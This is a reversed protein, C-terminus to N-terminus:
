LDAAPLVDMWLYIYQCFMNLPRRESVQVVSEPHRVAIQLRLVDHEAIGVRAGSLRDGLQDIEPRRLHQRPVGVPSGVVASIHLVHAGRHFFLCHGGGVKAAWRPRLPACATSDRMAAPEILCRRRTAGPTRREPTTRRPSRHCSGSAAPPRPLAQRSSAAAAQQQGQKQRSSAAGAAQQQQKRSSGRGGRSASM